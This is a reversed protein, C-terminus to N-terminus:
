ASAVGSRWTRPRPPLLIGTAARRASCSTFYTTRAATAHSQKVPSHGLTEANEGHPAKAPRRAPDTSPIEATANPASAATITPMANSSRNKQWNRQGNPATKESSGTSGTECKRRLRGVQALRHLRQWSRQGTATWGSRPSRRLPSHMAQPRQASPQGRELTATQPCDNEQLPKPVTM